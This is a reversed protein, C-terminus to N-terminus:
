GFDSLHKGFLTIKTLNNSWTYQNGTFGIVSFGVAIQFNNFAMMLSDDEMNGGSMDDWSSVHNFDEDVLWPGNHGVGIGLEVLEEWFAHVSLRNM